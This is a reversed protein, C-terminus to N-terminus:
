AAAQGGEKTVYANVVAALGRAPEAITRVVKTAPASITGLLRARIVPLPPLDALAKVQEARITKDGLLGGKIKFQDGKTADSFVKALAPVEDFAIGILSPGEFLEEGPLDNRKLVMSMLTNKVLHVENGTERAKARLNDIDKMQMKEYSLVYIAKSDKIWQQYQGLMAEKEKKTFALSSEGGELDFFLFDKGQLSGPL